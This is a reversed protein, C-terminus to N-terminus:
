IRLETYCANVSETLGGRWSCWACHWFYGLWAELKLNATGLSLAQARRKMNETEVSFLFMIKPTTYV